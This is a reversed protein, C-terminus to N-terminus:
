RSLLRARAGKDMDALRYEILWAKFERQYAPGTPDNRDLKRMIEARAAAMAEGIVVYHEWTDRETQKLHDWYQAARRYLDIQASQAVPESNVPVVALATSPPASESSDTDVTLAARLESAAGEAAIAALGNDVRNAKSVQAGNFYRWHSDDPARRLNAPITGDDDFM